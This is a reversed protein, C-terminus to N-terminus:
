YNRLVSPINETKTIPFAFLSLGQPCQYSRRTPAGLWQARAVARPQSEGLGANQIAQIVKQEYDASTEGKAEPIHM